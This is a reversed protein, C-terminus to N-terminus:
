NNPGGHQTNIQKISRNNDDNIFPIRREKKEWEREKGSNKEEKKGKERKEGKEGTKKLCQKAEREKWKEWEWLQLADKNVRALKSDVFLTLIIAAMIMM